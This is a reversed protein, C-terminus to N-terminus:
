DVNKLSPELKSFYEQRIKEDIREDLLLGSLSSILAKYREADVVTVEDLIKLLSVERESHM